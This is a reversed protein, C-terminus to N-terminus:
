DLGDRLQANMIKGCNEFDVKWGILAVKNLIQRLATKEAYQV